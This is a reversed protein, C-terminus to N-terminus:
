RGVSGSMRDQDLTIAERGVHERMRKVATGLADLAAREIIRRSESDSVEAVLQSIALALLADRRLPDWPPVPKPKGGVIIVGGQDQTVGFLIQAVALWQSDTLCWPAKTVAGCSLILSRLENRLTDLPPSAGEKLACIKQDPGVVYVKPVGTIGYLEWVANDAVIPFTIGFQAVSAPLKALEEAFDLGSFTGHIMVFWIKPIYCGGKFEEWLDQLIPAELQCPGCWTLGNFALVVIEGQHDHLTFTQDTGFIPASFPPAPDGIALPM